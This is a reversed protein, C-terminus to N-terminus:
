LIKTITNVETLQSFNTYLNILDEFFLNENGVMKVKDETNTGNALNTGNTGNHTAKKDTHKEPKESTAVNSNTNSINNTIAKENEKFIASKFKMESKIVDDINNKKVTKISSPMNIVTNLKKSPSSNLKTNLLRGYSIKNEVLKPISSSSRSSRPNSMSRDSRPNSHDNFDVRVTKKDSAYPKKDLKISKVILFKETKENLNRGSSYKESPQLKNVINNFNSISANKYTNKKVLDTFSILKNKGLEEKIKVEFDLNSETNSVITSQGM